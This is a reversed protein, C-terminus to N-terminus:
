LEFVLNVANLMKEYEHLETNKKENKTMMTAQDM